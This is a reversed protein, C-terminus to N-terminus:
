AAPPQTTLAWSVLSQLKHLDRLHGETSRCPLLAFFRESVKREFASIGGILTSGEPILCTDFHGGEFLKVM